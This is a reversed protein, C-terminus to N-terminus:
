HIGCECRKGVGGGWSRTFIGTTQQSSDKPTKNKTKRERVPVQARLLKAGKMELARWKKKKKRGCTVKSVFQRAAQRVTKKKKKEQGRQTRLSRFSWRGLGRNFARAKKGGGPILLEAVTRSRRTFGLRNALEHSSIEPFHTFIPLCSVVPGFIYFLSLHSDLVLGLQYNM